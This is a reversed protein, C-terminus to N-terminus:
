SPSVKGTLCKKLEDLLESFVFPKTLYAAAGEMTFLKQMKEGKATMIVVPIKDTLTDFKLHQLVSLGDLEPMMVDLLILDPRVERAKELGEKGDAAQLVQYGADTLKAELIRMTDKDDDIVLVKAM